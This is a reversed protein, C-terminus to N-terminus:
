RFQLRMLEVGNKKELGKINVKKEESRGGESRKKKTRKTRETPRM